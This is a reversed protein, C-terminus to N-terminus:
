ITGRFWVISSYTDTFTYSWANEFEADFTLYVMALNVDMYSISNRYLM